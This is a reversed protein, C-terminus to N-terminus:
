ALLLEPDSNDGINVNTGGIHSLALVAYPLISIYYGFLTLLVDNPRMQWASITHLMQNFLNKHSLMIGKPLGTTGSTYCIACIDDENVKTGPEDSPYDSLLEEYGKTDNPNRSIVFFNSVTGLRSRIPNVIASYNDEFILTNVESDNITHSIVEEPMNPNLAVWVMGGKAAALLIEAHQPSSKALIAVKDGKRMGIDFFANSLKNVRENLEGFSYRKGGFVIATGQPFDRAKKKIIDGLVM